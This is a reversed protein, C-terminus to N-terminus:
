PGNSRRPILPGRSVAESNNQDPGMPSRLEAEGRIGRVDGKEMIISAVIMAFNAVDACELLIEVSNGNSIAQRLENVEGRMLEITKPIDLKEWRGKHANRAMKYSMAEVFRRIDHRYPECEAPIRLTIESM